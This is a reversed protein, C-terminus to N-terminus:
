VYVNQNSSQPFQQFLNAKTVDLQGEEWSLWSSHAAVDVTSKYNPEKYLFGFCWVWAPISSHLPQALCQEVMGYLVGAGHWECIQWCICLDIYSYVPKDVCRHYM